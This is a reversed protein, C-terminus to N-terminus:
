SRNKERAERVQERTPYSAIVEADSPPLQIHFGNEQLNQMVVSVDERSLKREPTLTLEMVFEPRPFQRMVPDPVDEFHDREVVYLYMEARKITKYIFCTVSESM